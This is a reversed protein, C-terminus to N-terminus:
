TRRCTASRTSSCTSTWARADLQVAHQGRHPLGGAHGHHHPQPDEAPAALRLVALVHRGPLHRAPQDSGARAHPASLRDCGGLFREVYDELTLYRDSRDPYGWDIIYVDEGRALLGRVISRDEQLDVMYPRNVLAYSILLPVKATPATEGRYRYLVVKGDSWVAEKTTAGYEVDDVERLTNLGAGLKQQIKFAEDALAEPSAAFPGQSKMRAKGKPKTSKAAKKPRV